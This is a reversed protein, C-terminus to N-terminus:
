RVRETIRYQIAIDPIVFPAPNKNTKDNSITFQFANLKMFTVRKILTSLQCIEFEVTDNDVLNYLNHYNKFTLKYRLERGPQTTIVSVQRIHKYYNPANFHLKQSVFYWDIAHVDDDYISFTKFDFTYLLDNMQILLEENNWIIKTVNYMLEWKWWSANRMDYLYLIPSDQRYMFVWNKYQYLKIPNVAFSDYMDIINETLYNYIQETSQVFNQYTLGTLGKINTLLITAGDYSLMVDSGKRCGLQLKTPTLTYYANDTNYQYEYVNNELFIGLSTQSFIVMATIDNIFKVETNEPFYIQGGRKVSQYLLNNKAFSITIFQELLDPFIVHNKGNIMYEIYATGFNSNYFTSNEIGFYTLETGDINLWVPNNTYATESDEPFRQLLQYKNSSYYLYTDTLVVESDESLLYRKSVTSSLNRTEAHGKRLKYPYDSRSGYYQYPGSSPMNTYDFTDSYYSSDWGDITSPNSFSITRYTDGNSYPYVMKVSFVGNRYKGRFDTANYLDQIGYSAIIDPMFEISSVYSKMIYTNVSRGNITSRRVDLRCFNHYPVLNENFIIVDSILKDALFLPEYGAPNTNLYWASFYALHLKSNTVTLKVKNNECFKIQSHENTGFNAGFYPKVTPFITGNFIIMIYAGGGITNDSHSTGTESYNTASNEWTTYTGFAPMIIIAYQSSPSHAFPRFVDVNINTGGYTYHGPVAYDITASTWKTSVMNYNDDSRSESLNYKTNSFDITYKIEQWNDFNIDLQSAPIDLYWLSATTGSNVRKWHYFLRSGDDSLFIACGQSPNHNGPYMLEVFIDADYSLYCRDSEYKYALYIPVDNTSATIVDVEHTLTSVPKTFVIQNNQQFNIQFKEDGITIEVDKGNILQTDIALRYTFIYRVIEKDTFINKSETVANADDSNEPITQTVPIYILEDATFWAFENEKEYNYEFAVVDTPMFVIYRSDINIIKIASQITITDPNVYWKDKYKFRIRYTEGEVTHYITLNNIKVIDVIKETAPIINIRKTVPRTSLQNNQDVYVNKADEFSQQDIGVYNKNSNIGKFESFNFYQENLDYSDTDVSMPNRKVTRMAM